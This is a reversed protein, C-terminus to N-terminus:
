RVRVTALQGKFLTLEVQITASTGTKHLVFSVAHGHESVGMDRGDQIEWNTMSEGRKALDGVLAKYHAPFVDAWNPPPIPDAAALIESAFPTADSVSADGLPEKLAKHRGSSDRMRPIVENAPVSKEQQLRDRMNRWLETLSMCGGCSQTHIELVYPLSENAGFIVQTIHGWYERRRLSFAGVAQGGGDMTAQVVGALDPQSVRLM